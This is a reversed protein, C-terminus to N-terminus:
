IAQEPIVLTDWGFITNKKWKIFGKNVLSTRNLHSSIPRTRKQINLSRSELETWLFAFYGPVKLDEM